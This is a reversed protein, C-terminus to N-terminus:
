LLGLRSYRNALQFFDDCEAYRKDEVTLFHTPLGTMQLNTDRV